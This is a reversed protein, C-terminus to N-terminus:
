DLYDPGMRGVQTVAPRHIGSGAGSERPSNMPKAVRRAHAARLLRTARESPRWASALVDIHQAVVRDWAALEERASTALSAERCGQSVMAEYDTRGGM